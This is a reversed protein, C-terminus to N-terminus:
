HEQQRYVIKVGDPDRTEFALAGDELQKLGGPINKERFILEDYAREASPVELTISLKHQPGQYDYDEDRGNENRARGRVEVVASGAQYLAARGGDRDWGRLLPLAMVEGYFRCTRDFDRAKLVIRLQDIEM